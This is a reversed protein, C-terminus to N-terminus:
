CTVSEPSNTTLDFFFFFFFFFLSLSLLLVLSVWMTRLFLNIYLIYVSVYITSICLSPTWSRTETSNPASSSMACYSVKSFLVRGKFTNIHVYCSTLIVVRPLSLSNARLDQSEEWICTLHPDSPSLM